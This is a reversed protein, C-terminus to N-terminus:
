VTEDVQLGALKMLDAVLDLFKESPFERVVKDTQNDVLRVMIRNTEKHVKFSLHEDARSFAKNVIEVSKNLTSESVMSPAGALDPVPAAAPAGPNPAVATRAITAQAASRASTVDTIKM